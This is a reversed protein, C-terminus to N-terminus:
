EIISYTFSKGGHEKCIQNLHIELKAEGSLRSYKDRSLKTERMIWPEFSNGNVIYDYAMRGISVSLVAPKSVLNYHDFSGSQVVKNKAGKPLKVGLDKSTIAWNIKTPESERVLTGGQIQISLLIKADTFM